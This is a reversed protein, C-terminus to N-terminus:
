FKTSNDFYNHLFSLFNQYELFWSSCEVYNNPTYILEGRVKCM